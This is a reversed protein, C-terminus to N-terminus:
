WKGMRRQIPRFLIQLWYVPNILLFKKLLEFYLKYRANMDRSIIDSKYQEKYSDDSIEPVLLDCRRKIERELKDKRDGTAIQPRHENDKEIPIGEWKIIEGGSM